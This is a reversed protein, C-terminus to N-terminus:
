VKLYMENTVHDLRTLWYHFRAEMQTQADKLKEQLLPNRLYLQLVEDSV